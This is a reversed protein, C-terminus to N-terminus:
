QAKVIGPDFYKEAIKRYGGDARMSALAQNIFRQLDADSKRLAIGMGEGFHTPDDYVPGVFGFGAANSRGLFASASAVWDVMVLDLRGMVLDRYMDEQHAYRVVECGPFNGTVFRDQVTSRQVGIRKGKLRASTFEREDGLRGVFRTPSKFYSDSFLVLRRRQDTMSVAAVIADFKRSHLSLILSDFEEQVFVCKAGIKECVANAIDIDFGECSGDGRLM